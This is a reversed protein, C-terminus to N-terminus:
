NPLIEPISEVGDCLSLSEQITNPVGTKVMNENREEIKAMLDKM